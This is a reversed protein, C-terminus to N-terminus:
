KRIPMLRKFFNVWLKRFSNDRFNNHLYYFVLIVYFSFLWIFFSIIWLFRVWHIKSIYYYQFRISVFTKPLKLNWFDLSKLKKKLLKRRKLIKRQEERQLFWPYIWTLPLCEVSFPCSTFKRDDFFDLLSMFKKFLMTLLIIISEWSGFQKLYVSTTRRISFSHTFIQLDLLVFILLQHASHFGIGDLACILLSM